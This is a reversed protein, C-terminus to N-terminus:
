VVVIKHLYKTDMFNRITNTHSFIWNVITVWNIVANVIASIDASIQNRPLTVTLDVDYISRWLIDLVLYTKRFLFSFNQNMVFEVSWIFTWIRSKWNNLSQAFSTNSTWAKFQIGLSLLLTVERRALLPWVFSNLTFYPIHEM